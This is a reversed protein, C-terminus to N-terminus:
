RTVETEADNVPHAPTDMTKKIQEALFLIHYTIGELRETSKELRAVQNEQTSGPSHSRWIRCQKHVIEIFDNQEEQIEFINTLMYRNLLVRSNKCIELKKLYQSAETLKSQMVNQLLSLCDFDQMYPNTQM